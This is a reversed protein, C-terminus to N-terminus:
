MNKVFKDSTNIASITYQEDIVRCLFTFHQYM